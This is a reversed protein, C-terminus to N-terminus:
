DAAAFFSIFFLMLEVFIMLTEVMLLYTTAHAFYELARGEPLIAIAWFFGAIGWSVCKTLNRLFIATGYTTRFALHFTGYKNMTYMWYFRDAYFSFHSVILTGYAIWAYLAAQILNSDHVTDGKNLGGM